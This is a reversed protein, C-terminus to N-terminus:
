NLVAFNEDYSTHHKKHINPNLLIHWDQLLKVGFPLKLHHSRIHSYKHSLQSLNAIHCSTIIFLSLEKYFPSLLISFTYLPINNFIAEKFNEKIPTHIMAGPEKHHHRSGDALTRIPELNGFYNDSAIHYIGSILDATFIAPLLSLSTNTISPLEPNIYFYLVTIAIPIILLKDSLLNNVTPKTNFWEKINFSISVM